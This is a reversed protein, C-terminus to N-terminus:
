AEDKVKFELLVADSIKQILWIEAIVKAEQISIDNPVNTIPIEVLMKYDM